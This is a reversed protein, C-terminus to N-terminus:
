PREGASVRLFERVASQYAWPYSPIGMHPGPTPELEYVKADGVEAPFM